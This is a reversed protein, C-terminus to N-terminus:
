APKGNWDPRGMIAVPPKTYRKGPNDLVDRFDYRVGPFGIMKWSCMDKNGGYVPDAFFGEMTNQLILNFLMTATQRPAVLGPLRVEGKEMGQLLKVQDAEALQEFSKGAFAERCHAALAALGQRYQQQPTLPSQIGQTPLPKEAFPGQMYLWEYTGYPGALQRDIFVVCGADKGSPSLDDAPILRSTIAELTAVEAPNLFYWGGPRALEPPYAENPKWPMRGTVSRGLAPASFAVLATASLLQRRSSVPM